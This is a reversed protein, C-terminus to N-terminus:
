CFFKVTQLFTHKKLISQINIDSSKNSLEVHMHHKRTIPQATLNLGCYNSLM